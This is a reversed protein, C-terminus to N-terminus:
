GRDAEKSAPALLARLNEALEPDDEVEAQSAEAEIGDRLRALDALAEATQEVWTALSDVAIVLEDHRVSESLKLGANEETLREVERALIVADTRTSAIWQANTDAFGYQGRATALDLGYFVESLVPWGHADLEGQNPRWSWPGPTAKEDLALVRAVVDAVPEDAM